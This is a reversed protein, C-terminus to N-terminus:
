AVLFRLSIRSIARREVSFKRTWRLKELVAEIREGSRSDLAHSGVMFVALGRQMCSAM